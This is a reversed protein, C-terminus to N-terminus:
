KLYLIKGSKRINRSLFTYIYIGSSFSAFNLPISIEQGAPLDLSTHFIERGTLDVILVKGRQPHPLPTIQLTTQGNFPNPHISTSGWAPKEPLISVAGSDKGFYILIDDIQGRWNGWSHSEPVEIYAHPYGKNELIGKMRLTGSQADHITGTSMWIKLPRLPHDSYLDYIAPNYWFAPSQIALLHFTEPKVAGTYAACIGGMSTGLLCRSDPDTQTKYTSDIHPVLEDALFNAFAANINYESMRRNTSGGPTVPSIFVAIFPNIKRDHILNDLVTPVSGMLSNAYEHGDTIYLVPLGSLTEYGAPTYVRYHISYDLANSYIPINDSLTGKRTDDRSLVEVPFVYDPMRLVSNYGYGGMQRYPNAPDLIWTSGNLVIKYDLRAHSPFTKELFWVNGNLRQVAANFSNDSWSNFDGHWAVSSAAGRYLFMVSDAIKFPIQRDEKLQTWLSNLAEERETDAQIATIKFLTDRFADYSEFSAAGLVSIWFLILLLFKKM